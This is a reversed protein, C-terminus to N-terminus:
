LAAGAQELAATRRLRRLALRTKLEFRLGLMAGRYERGANLDQATGALRDELAEAAVNVYAQTGAVVARAFISHLDDDPQLAARARAYILGGDVESTCEHVTAGVMDPSGELIPWFACSVGRYWPSLGTHMNLAPGQSLALVDDPIIGTGYIVLVTGPHAAVAQALGGDRPRGVQQVLDPRDFAASSAGLVRRLSAERAAADGILRLFIQRLAKDVFRLPATRLVTKWSRRRPPTCVLVAAVPHAQMLHNTVYRHEAGDGTIIVLAM